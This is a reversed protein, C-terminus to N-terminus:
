PAQFFMRPNGRAGLTLRDAADVLRYIRETFEFAQRIRAPTSPQGDPEVASTLVFPRPAVLAAFHGIDGLELINPAMLGM